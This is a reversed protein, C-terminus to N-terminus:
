GEHGDYLGPRQRAIKRRSQLSRSWARCSADFPMAGSAVTRVSGAPGIEDQSDPEDVVKKASSDASLRLAALRVGAERLDSESVIAYRRYVSETKHGTMKMAVSRSVGARELTWVASRRLDHLVRGPVGAKRCAERWSGKMSRIPGQAETSVWIRGYTSVEFGAM